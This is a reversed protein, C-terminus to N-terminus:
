KRKSTQGPPPAQKRGPTTAAHTDRAQKGAEELLEQMEQPSKLLDLARALQVDAELLSEAVPPEAPLIMTVAPMTAPTRRRAPAEARPPSPLEAKAQLLALRERRSPSAAVELHPDIGWKGGNPRRSIPQDEGLLCESTTLNVQGLEGPLRVMSQVYGKGRTRTGILVARGAQRLAGAVIEAASATRGDILVVIPIEPPYTGEPRAVYRRPAGTRGVVTVITGHSLFLDAVDIAAPLRGGPNDRLDLILGALGDVQRFAEQFEEATRSLFERLRFYALRRKPDLLYVWKGSADRHLGQVSELRIEQRELEVTRRGEDGGLVELRVTQGLPGDNLMADIQAPMLAEVPSGNVALAVDGPRLEARYAPSGFLVRRVRAQGDALDLRLGLGRERGEMRREFAEVKGSSVYTSFEDVAGAMGGIAGHLLEEEKVPLLSTDKILRYTEAVPRFEAETQDGAPAPPRSVRVTILATAVIAIIWILNRKPM